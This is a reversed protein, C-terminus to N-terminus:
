REYIFRQIHVFVAIEDDKPAFVRDQIDPEKETTRYVSNHIEEFIITKTKGVVMFEKDDNTLRHMTRDEIDLVNAFLAGRKKRWEFVTIPIQIMSADRWYGQIIKVNNDFEKPFM